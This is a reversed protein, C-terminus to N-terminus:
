TRAEGTRGYRNVQHGKAVGRQYGVEDAADLAADLLAELNGLGQSEHYILDSAEDIVKQRALILEATNTVSHASRLHYARAPLYATM